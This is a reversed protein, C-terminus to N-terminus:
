FPVDDDFDMGGGAHQQHQYQQQPAGQAAMQRQANNQYGGNNGQQQYGGNGQQQYQQRQQQRAGQQQGQGQGQGGGLMLMEGGIIETSYRDQGSQDQWKRTRIQGEIYLKQGARVHDRIVGALPGFFSVRHWETRQQRNGNQDNWVEGTAISLTAVEGGNAIARVEPDQGVNGILTVKNLGRSM